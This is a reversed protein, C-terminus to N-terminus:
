TAGGENYLEIADPFTGNHILALVNRALVENLRVAPWTNNVVWSLLTPTLTSQYFGNAGKGIVRVTNTGNPLGALTILTAVPTEASYAGGNLSFKYAVVNSGGVTLSASTSPTPSRPAGTLTATPANSVVFAPLQSLVFARRADMYSKISDIVGVPVYGGLTEDVTANFNSQALSTQLMDYLAQYYIPTFEPENVFRAFATGSGNPSTCTFLGANSPLSGGQGLITDLNYYTLQFRPD